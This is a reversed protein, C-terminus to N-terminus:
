TAQCVGPPNMGAFRSSPRRDAFGQLAEPREQRCRLERIGNVIRQGRTRGPRVSEWANAWQIVRRRSLGTQHQHVSRVWGSAAPPRRKGARAPPPVRVEPAIRSTLWDKPCRSGPGSRPAVRRRSSNETAAPRRGSTRFAAPKLSRSVPSTMGAADSQRTASADGLLEAGVHGETRRAPYARGVSAYTAPRALQRVEGLEPRHVGGEADWARSRERAVTLRSSGRMPWSRVRKRSPRGSRVASGSCSALRIRRACSGGSRPCGRRRAAPTSSIKRCIPSATAATSGRELCRPVSWRCM